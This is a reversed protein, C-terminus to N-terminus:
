LAICKAGPLPPKYSSSTWMWSHYWFASPLSHARRVKLIRTCGDTIGAFVSVLGPRTTRTTAQGSLCFTTSFRSHVLPLKDLCAFHQRSDHISQLATEM